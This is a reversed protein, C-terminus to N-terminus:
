SHIELSLALFILVNDEPEPDLDLIANADVECAPEVPLVNVSCLGSVDLLLKDARRCYLAGVTDDRM